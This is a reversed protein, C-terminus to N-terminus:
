PWQDKKLAARYDRERDWLARCNTSCFMYFRDGVKLPKDMAANCQKCQRVYEQTELNYTM